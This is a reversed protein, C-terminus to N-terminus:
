IVVFFLCGCPVRGEEEVMSSVRVFSEFGTSFDLALGSLVEGVVEGFGSGFCLGCEGLGGFCHLCKVVFLLCLSAIVVFSVFDPQFSGIYGRRLGALLQSLFSVAGEFDESFFSERHHAEEDSVSMYGEIKVKGESERCRRDM